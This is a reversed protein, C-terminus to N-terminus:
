LKFELGLNIVSARINYDRENLGFFYRATILLNDRLNYGAGLNIGIEFKDYDFNNPDNPDFQENPVNPDFVNEETRYTRDIIYGVQPGVEVFYKKTFFYRLELPLVLTLDNVRSRFDSVMPNSDFDGQTEVDEIVFRSGQMALLLEPQFQLKEILGINLFGGVYYGIKGKYDGMEIEFFKPNPTFQSYNAGAKIGFKIEKSQANITFSSLLLCLVISLTFKKM